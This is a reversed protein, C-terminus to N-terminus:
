DGIDMSKIVEMFLNRYFGYDDKSTMALFTYVDDGIKKFYCLTVVQSDYIRYSFEFYRIQGQEDEDSVSSILEFEEYNLKLKEIDFNIKVFDEVDGEEWRIVNVQLQKHIVDTSNDSPIFLSLVEGDAGVEREWSEPYNITYNGVSNYYSTTEQSQLSFVLVLLVVFFLFSFRKRKEM